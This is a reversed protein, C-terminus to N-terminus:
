KGLSFVAVSTYKAGEPRLESRFLVVEECRWTGFDVGAYRELIGDADRPRRDKRVRALTAHPTFLRREREFGVPALAEEVGRALERLEGAGTGTRAYLVRPPKRGGRGGSRPPPLVGLGTLGLEFAGNKQSAGALADKIPGVLEEGAEGLFKLTLHVNEGAVWRWASDRSGRRVEGLRERVEVPIEVAVFLRL